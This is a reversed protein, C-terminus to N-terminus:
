EKGVQVRFSLTPILIVNEQLEQTSPDATSNLDHRNDMLGM